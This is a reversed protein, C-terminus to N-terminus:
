IQEVFRKLEGCKTCTFVQIYTRELDFSHGKKVIFGLKNAHEIKSESIYESLLKWDHKCFM